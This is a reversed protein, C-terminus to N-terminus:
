RINGRRPQAQAAQQAAAWLKAWSVLILPPWVPITVTVLKWQFTVCQHLNDIITDDPCFVPQIHSALATVTVHPRAPQATHGPGTDCDTSLTLLTMLWHAGAM